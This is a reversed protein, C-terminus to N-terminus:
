MKSIFLAISHIQTDKYEWKSGCIKVNIIDNEKLTSFEVNGVHNHKFLYIELPSTEPKDIYCIVQSKDINGVICQLIQNNMPNCVNATYKIKYTTKGDFSANNIMGLSRTKIEITNPMIYGYKICIGQVKRELKLLIIDDIKHNLERPNIYIYEDLLLTKYLDNNINENIKKQVTNKRSEVKDAGKDGKKLELSINAMKVELSANAM